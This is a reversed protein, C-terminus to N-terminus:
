FLLSVSLSLNSISATVESDTSSTERWGNLTLRTNRGFSWLIGVTPGSTVISHSLSRAEGDYAYRDQSFYRFGVSMTLDDSTRYFFRPWFSKEVFYDVPKENFEQWMLLGREFLRLSGLFGFDIYKSCSIVTSDTWSAQRFSFSKVSAVQAEFDYVTYNALVEGRNESRIWSAPRITVSPSFSLVRNWNNNASELRDLYVLHNLTGLLSFEIVLYPSIRHSTQVLISLLLEDRDDTNLSDPTDYRLISASGNMTLQDRSTIDSRISTWLSTRQSTYELRRASQQQSQVISVPIGQEEVAGHHEDREQYSIGIDGQLWAFVQSSLSVAGNLLLEQIRSDLTITSPQVFNKYRFGRDITRNQIGGRFTLFSMENLRYRLLNSIDFAVADRRFINHDIAYIDKLAQDAPTYFERRQRSFRATLSDSTGGGFDRSLSVAANTQEPSRRGLFSKSWDSQIRAQIEEYRLGRSDLSADLALGHDRENEQDNLEYGGLLELSLRDPNYGVGVLGQHQALKGLDISQNDSVVLSTTRVLLNWKEALTSRFGVSGDYEGQRAAPQTRILRSRLNQRISLGINSNDETVKLDGKWIFTNLVREFGTSLTDPLPLTERSGATQGNAIAACTFVVLMFSFRQWM